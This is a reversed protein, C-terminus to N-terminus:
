ESATDLPASPPLQPFEMLIQAGSMSEIFAVLDDIEQDSLGLPKVLSTKTKAFENKGGGQNYFEM